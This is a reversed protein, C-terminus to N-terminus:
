PLAILNTSPKPFDASRFSRFLQYAAKLQKPFDAGSWERFLQYNQL